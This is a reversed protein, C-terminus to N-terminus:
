RVSCFHEFLSLVISFAITFILQGAVSLLSDCTFARGVIARLTSTSCGIKMKPPLHFFLLFAVCAFTFRAYAM